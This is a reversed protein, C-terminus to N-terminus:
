AAERPAAEEKRSKRAWHGPASGYLSCWPPGRGEPKQRTKVLLFGPLLHFSPLSSPLATAEQSEEQPAGKPRSQEELTAWAEEWSAKRVGESGRPERREESRIIPVAGCDRVGLTASAGDPASRLTKIVELLVPGKHWVNTINCKFSGPAKSISPKLTIEVEM